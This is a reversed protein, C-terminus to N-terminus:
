ESADKFEQNNAHFYSIYTEFVGRKYKHSNQFMEVNIEITEFKKTKVFITEMIFSLYSLGFDKDKSERKVEDM